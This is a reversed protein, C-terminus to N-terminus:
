REKEDQTKWNRRRESNQNLPIKPLRCEDMRLIHKYVNQKETEENLYHFDIVARSNLKLQSLSEKTWGSRQGTKCTYNLTLVPREKCFKTHRRKRCNTTHYKNHPYVFYARCVCTCTHRHRQIRLHVFM